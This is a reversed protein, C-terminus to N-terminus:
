RRNGDRATERRGERSIRRTNYERLYRRHEEGTPYSEDIGYPYRSMDHFPLPEVTNGTATNLDADKIWGDTYILFDRSWGPGLAPPVSADFQLTVEDGPAMIVYRDDSQLLPSLVDGYRTFTGTIPQWRAETSVDEYAFWHPGYRGGKRYVRSYGRAHLDAAVPELTTLRVPAESATTSLFVHDWYIEM